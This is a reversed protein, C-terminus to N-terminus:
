LGAHVETGDDEVVGANVGIGADVGNHYWPEVMTGIAIGADELVQMLELVQLKERM